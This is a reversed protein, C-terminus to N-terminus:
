SVYNLIGQNHWDDPIRYSPAFTADAAGGGSGSGGGGGSASVVIVVIVLVVTACSVDM